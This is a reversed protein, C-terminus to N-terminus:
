YEPLCMEVEGQQWERIEPQILFYMVMPHHLPHIREKLFCANLHKRVTTAELTLIM